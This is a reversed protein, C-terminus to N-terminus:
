RTEHGSYPVDLRRHSDQTLHRVSPESDPFSARLSAALLAEIRNDFQDVAVIKSSFGEKELRDQARKIKRNLTTSSSVAKVFVIIGDGVDPDPLSDGILNLDYKEMLAKLKNKELM